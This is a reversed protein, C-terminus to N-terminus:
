FGVGVRFYALAQLDYGSSNQSLDSANDKAGGFFYHYGAQPTIGVALIKAFKYRIGIGARAGVGRTKVPRSSIDAGSSSRTENDLSGLYYAGALRLVLAWSKGLGIEGDGGLNFSLLNAGTDGGFFRLYEVYAGVFVIKAGVEFGAAGGGAWNFFDRDTKGNGTVGGALLNGYLEVIKAEAPRSLLLPLLAALVVAAAKARM